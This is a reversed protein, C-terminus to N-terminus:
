LPTDEKIVSTFKGDLINLRNAVTLHYSLYNEAHFSFGSTTYYNDIKHIMDCYTKMNDYNAIAFQDNVPTLGYGYRPKRAMVVGQDLAHTNLDYDCSLRGDLRFRVYADYENPIKSFIENLGYWMKLISSPVLKRNQRIPYKSDDFWKPEKKRIEIYKYTVNPLLYRSTKDIVDQSSNYDDSPWLVLYIHAESYGKLQNQLIALSQTFRPQGATFLAIKM